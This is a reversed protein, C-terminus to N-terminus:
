TWPSIRYGQSVNRGQTENKSLHTEVRTLCSESNICFHARATQLIWESESMFSPGSLIFTQQASHGLNETHISILMERANSDSKFIQSWILIPMDPGGSPPEHRSIFHFSKQNKHCSQCWCKNWLWLTSPAASWALFPVTQQPQLSSFLAAIAM